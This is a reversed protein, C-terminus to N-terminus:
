TEAGEHLELTVFSFPPLPGICSLRMRGSEEANLGDVAADFEPLRDRDVLFSAQLVMMDMGSERVSVDRAAPSLRGLLRDADVEKRARVAAAVFEGLALQDDARAGGKRGSAARRLAPEERVVESLIEEELYAAKFTVEVAGDVRDLASEFLDYRPELLERVVAEADPLVVGFRFPLVTTGEAVRNLVDSHAALDRRLQRVSPEDGDADPVEGLVAALRRHRVATVASESVGRGLVKPPPAPHRVIGYLHVAM